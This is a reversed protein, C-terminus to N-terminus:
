VWLHLLVQTVSVLPSFVCFYLGVGFAVSEVQFPYFWIPDDPFTNLTQFHYIERIFLWVGGM